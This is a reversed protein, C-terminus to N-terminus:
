TNTSQGVYRVLFQRVTTIRLLSGHVSIGSVDALVFKGVYFSELNKRNLVTASAKNM